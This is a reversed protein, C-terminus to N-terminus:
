FAMPPTFGCLFKRSTTWYRMSPPYDIWRWFLPLHSVPQSRCPGSAQLPLYGLSGVHGLFDTSRNNLRAIVLNVVVVVVAVAVAVAVVAVAVAVAVVAVAVVAVAVAAVSTERRLVLPLAQAQQPKDGLAQEAVKARVPEAVELKLAQHKGPHLITATQL